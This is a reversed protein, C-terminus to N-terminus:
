KKRSSTATNQHKDYILLASDLNALSQKDPKQNATNILKMVLESLGSEIKEDSTLNAKKIDDWKDKQKWNYITKKSVSPVLKIIEDISYRKLYLNLCKKKIRENIM